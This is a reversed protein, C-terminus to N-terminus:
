SGKKAAYFCLADKIHPLTFCKQFKKPRTDKYDNDVKKLQIM